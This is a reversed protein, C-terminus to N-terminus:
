RLNRLIELALSPPRSVSLDPRGMFLAGGRGGSVGLSGVSGGPIQTHGGEDKPSGQMLGQALTSAMAGGAGLGATLWPSLGGAAQAVVPAAIAPGLAGAATSAATAAAPIASAAM